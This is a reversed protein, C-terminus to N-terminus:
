DYRGYEEVLERFMELRKRPTGPVAQDSPAIVMRPCEKRLELHSRVFRVFEKEPTYQQWISAPIGGWLIMRPGAEARAERATIDGDPAPTIAEACDAGCERLRGLLGRMRGDLHVSLWKGEAHCVDALRTYFGKMYREFLPPSHVDSSLNDSFLVFPAPSKATVSMEELRVDNILEITEEVEARHDALAYVTQAFGMYRSMLFGLGCYGGVGAIVGMDGIRRDFEAFRDYAPMVRRSAYAYNLTKLDAVSQIMRRTIDYSFSMPNWRRQEMIRGQPTEIVHQFLGGECTITEQVTDDYRTEYLTPGFLHCGLRLEKHLDFLRRDEVTDKTRIPVFTAGAAAVHWHSLDAYAPVVDPTEGRFVALLRERLTM